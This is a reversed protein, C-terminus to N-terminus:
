KIQRQPCKNTHHSSKGMAGCRNCRHFATTHHGSCHVCKDPCLKSKHSDVGREYCYVCRHFQTIHNGHCIACLPM